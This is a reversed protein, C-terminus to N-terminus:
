SVYSVVEYRGSPMKCWSLYLANNLGSNDATRVLDFNVVQNHTREDGCEAGGILMGKWPTGDEQVAHVGIEALADFLDQLPIKDHYGTTIGHIKINVQRKEKASLVGQRAMELYDKFKIM